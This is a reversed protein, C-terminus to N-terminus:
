VPVVRAISVEPENAVPLMVSVLLAPADIVPVPLSAKRILVFMVLPVTLTSLEPVMMELPAWTSSKAAIVDAVAFMWIMLLAVPIIREVASSAIRGPAPVIVILLLPKISDVAVLARAMLRLVEVSALRFDTCIMLLAPPVMWDAPSATRIVAEDSGSVAVPVKRSSLAPVIWDVPTPALLPWAMSKLSRTEGSAITVMMLRAVPSMEAASASAIRAPLLLVM